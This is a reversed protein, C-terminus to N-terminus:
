PESATESATVTWALLTALPGIGRWGMLRRTRQLWAILGATLGQLGVDSSGQRELAGKFAMRCTGMSTLREKLPETLEFTNVIVTAMVSRGLRESAGPASTALREVQDQLM